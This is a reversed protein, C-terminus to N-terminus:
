LYVSLDIKKTQIRRTIVEEIASRFSRTFQSYTKCETILTPVRSPLELIRRLYYNDMFAKRDNTDKFFRILQPFVYFFLLPSGYAVAMELSQCYEQYTKIDTLGDFFLRKLQGGRQYVYLDDILQCLLAKPMSKM